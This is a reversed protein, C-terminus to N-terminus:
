KSKLIERQILLLAFTISTLKILWLPEVKDLGKDVIM